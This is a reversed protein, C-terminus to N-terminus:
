INRSSANVPGTDFGCIAALAGAPLMLYGADLLRTRVDPPAHVMRARKAQEPGVEVAGLSALLPNALDHRNLDFVLYLAMPDPTNAKAAVFAVPGTFAVCSFAAFMWPICKYM